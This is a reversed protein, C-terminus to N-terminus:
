ISEWTDDPGLPQGAHYNGKEALLVVSRDNGSSEVAYKLFSLPHDAGHEYACLLTRGPSHFLSIPGAFAMGSIIEDPAYDVRNPMYSHQVQDFHSLQYETLALSELGPHEIRFYSIQDRGM